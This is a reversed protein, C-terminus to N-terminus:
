CTAVASWCRMIFMFLPFLVLLFVILKTRVDLSHLYTDKELYSNM